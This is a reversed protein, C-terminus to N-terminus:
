ALGYLGLPQYFWRCGDRHSWWRHGNADRYCSWSLNPEDIFFFEGTASNWVYHRNKVCPDNPLSSNDSPPAAYLEWADECVPQKVEISAMGTVALEVDATHPVDTDYGNSALSVEECVPRQVVTPAAETVALEVDTTHPADSDDVDSALTALM